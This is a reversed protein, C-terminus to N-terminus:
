PAPVRLLIADASGAPGSALSREPEGALVIAREARLRRELIQIQGLQADQRAVVVEGSSEAIWTSCEAGGSQAEIAVCVGDFSREVLPAPMWTQPAIEARYGVLATRERGALLRAPSGACAPFRASLGGRKAEIRVTAVRAQEAAAVLARAETRGASDSRPLILLDESWAPTPRSGAREGGRLELTAAVASPPIPISTRRPQVFFAQRDLEAGPGANPISSSERALFAFDIVDLADDKRAASGEEDPRTAAKVTLKWSALALPAGAIEVELTGGSDVIGAFAVQVFDIRPEQFTGLDPSGPDFAEISALDALDLLGELHIRRGGEIRAARLHLTRGHAATGLVPAAVGSDAAVEVDFGMVFPTAERLGLFAEEGSVLSSKATFREPAAGKANTGGGNAASGGGASGSLDMELDIRLTEGAREIEEIRARATDIAASDGRALLGSASRFFEIRTSRARAEEEVIKLLTSVPLRPAPQSGPLPLGDNRSLIHSGSSLPGPHSGSMRPECLAPTPLATWDATRAPQQQFPPLVAGALALALTPLLFM